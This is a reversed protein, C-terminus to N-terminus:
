DCKRADDRWSVLHPYAGGGAFSERTEIIALRKKCKDITGERLYGPQVVECQHWWDTPAKPAPSGSMEIVFGNFGWEKRVATALHAAAISRQAAPNKLRSSEDYIVVQPPKRGATWEEILKKLGEYTVYRINFKCQWKTYELKVSTLANRPAVWLVDIAGSAEIVEFAALTKGTGMESAFICYHRTFGHRFLDVQHLRLDRKPTAEILPKDYWYYPNNPDKDGPSALYAIQFRNRECDKVSWVKRPNSEDYGHYKSGEMEKIETMLPKNFGFKFFLRTGEKNITVPIMRTGAKLKVIWENQIDSIFFM